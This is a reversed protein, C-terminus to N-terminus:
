QKKGIGFLLLQAMQWKVAFDLSEGVNSLYKQTYIVWKVALAGDSVM